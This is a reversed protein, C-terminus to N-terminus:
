IYLELIYPSHSSSRQCDNTTLMIMTMFIHIYAKIHSNGMENEMIKKFMKVRLREVLMAGSYSFTVGQAGVAVFFLLGVAAMMLADRV